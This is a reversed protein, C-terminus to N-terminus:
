QLECGLCSFRSEGFDEVLLLLQLFVLIVSDNLFTRRRWVDGM